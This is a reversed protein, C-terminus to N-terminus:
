RRKEFGYGTLAQGVFYCRLVKEYRLLKLFEDAVMKPFIIGGDKKAVSAALRLCILKAYAFCCVAFAKLSFGAGELIHQLFAAVDSGQWLRDLAPGGGRPAGARWGNIRISCVWIGTM